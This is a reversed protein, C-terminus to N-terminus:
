STLTLRQVKSATGSDASGILVMKPGLEYVFLNRANRDNVLLLTAQERPNM